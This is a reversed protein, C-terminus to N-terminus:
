LAPIRICLNQGNFGAYEMIFDHRQKLLQQLFVPEGESSPIEKMEKLPATCQFELCVEKATMEFKLREFLSDRERGQLDELDSIISKVIFACSPNLDSTIVPDLWQRLQQLSAGNKKLDLDLCYKKQRRSCMLFPRFLSDASFLFDLFLPHLRSGGKPLSINRSDGPLGPGESIGFVGEENFEFEGQKEKLFLMEGEPKLYFVPNRCPNFFEM